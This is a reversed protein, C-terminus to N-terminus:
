GGKGGSERCSIQKGTSDMFETGRDDVLQRFDNVPNGLCVAVEQLTALLDLVAQVSTLRPPVAALICCQGIEVLVGHCSLSWKLEEDVKVLMSANASLLPLNVALKAFVLNGQTTSDALEIWGAPLSKGELHRRLCALEACLHTPRPFSM